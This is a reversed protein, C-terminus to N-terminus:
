TEPPPAPQRIDELRAAAIRKLLLFLIASLFAVGIIMIAVLALPRHTLLWNWRRWEAKPELIFQRGVAYSKFGDGESWRALDGRVGGSRRPDTLRESLALVSAPDADALMVVTRGAADPREFSVVGSFGAEAQGLATAAAARAAGMGEEDALLRRVTELPGASALMLKGDVTQFPGAQGGWTAFLPALGGWAGVILLDKDPYSAVDALRAVKVRTAAEGTAAGALAMLNLFAAAEEPSPADPLIVVTESLDAMRTFPYGAEAFGALDPLAVEAITEEFNLTSTPQVRLGYNPRGGPADNAPKAHLRYQLTLRHRSSKLSSPDLRHGFRASEDPAGRVASALGDLPRAFGLPASEQLAGSLLIDLRSKSPDILDKSPHDLQLTLAPGPADSSFRRPPTMFEITITGLAGASQLAEPRAAADGLMFPKDLPKWRRADDPRRDSLMPPNPVPRAAGTLGGGLAELALHRAVDVLAADDAATLVLLKGGNPDFPNPRLYIRDAGRADGLFLTDAFSDGPAFIVANGPGIGGHIVNIRLGARAAVDGFYSAVAAAAELMEASPAPPLVFAIRAADVGDPDVFPWPLEELDDPLPTPRSAYQVGSDIANIQVAPASQRASLNVGGAISLRLRNESSILAVDVPFPLTEGAATRGSLKLKGLSNGNFAVDIERLEVPLNEPHSFNLILRAQDVQRDRPMPVMIEVVPRLASLELSQAEGHRALPRWDHRGGPPQLTTVARADTSLLASAAHGDARAPEIPSISLATTLAATLAAMGSLSVAARRAGTLLGFVARFAALAGRRVAARPRRDWTLWADARGYVLRTIRDLADGKLPEFMVRLQGPTRETTQAEIRISGSEDEIEVTAPERAGYAIGDVLEFSAGTMSLDRTTTTITQGAIRVTAPRQIAHHAQSWAASRERMAAVAALVIILSFTAWVMNLALAGETEPPMGLGALADTGTARGVGFLLALALASAALLLPAAHKLDFYPRDIQGGKVTPTFGGRGPAAFAALSPLALHFAMASEHIDSWFAYRYRARLRANTVLAHILHPLGFLLLMRWDAAIMTQGFLLFAVPALLFALRPLPFFFHLMANLYCLRQGITLGPGGLPNDRRLIHLMGKTWRARQRIFRDMREPALGATLPLPLYASDWGARHLKLATHADETVTEEAFGGVADLASRRMLAGSGCFFAANWMDSGRQLVGYFLQTEGPATEGGSLNRQFPDPSHDHQPTQVFALNPNPGFGGATLQLFARTPPCDADFIAVLDADTKAMANNLNGAKAGRNGDRAVYACGVEAAFAKFDARGGDDLLHVRLKDAPYDMAMAALVTPAVTQLPEALSPIFVDVTPWESVDEPLPTPRRDLPWVSQLFGLTLAVFAYVEALFLGTGLLAEVVSDFALTETARWFLYRLSVTASLVALAVSVFHSQVRHLLALATLSALLVWVQVDAGTKTAAAWLLLVIAPATLLWLWRSSANAQRNLRGASGDM